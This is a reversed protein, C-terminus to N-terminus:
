AAASHPDPLRHRQAAMARAAQVAANLTDWTGQARGVYRAHEPVGKDDDSRWDGCVHDGITLPAEDAALEVVSFRHGHIVVIVGGLHHIYIVRGAAM